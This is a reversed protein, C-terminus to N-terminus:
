RDDRLKQQILYMENVSEEGIRRRENAEMLRHICYKKKQQGAVQDDIKEVLLYTGSDSAANVTVVAIPGGASNM